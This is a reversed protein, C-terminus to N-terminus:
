RVAGPEFIRLLRPQATRSHEARFLRFFTVEIEHFRKDAGGILHPGPKLLHGRELDIGAVIGRVAAGPASREGHRCIRRLVAGFNMLEVPEGEGPRDPIAASGGRGIRQGGVRGVDGIVVGVEDGTIYVASFGVNEIQVAVRLGRYFDVGRQIHEDIGVAGRQQKPFISPRDIIFFVNQRRQTM